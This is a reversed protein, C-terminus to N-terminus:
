RGYTIINAFKIDMPLIPYRGFMLSYPIEKLTANISTNHAFVVAPINRDWNTFEAEGIFPSLMTALTGHFRETLCNCEPTYSNTFRQEFGLAKGLESLFKARFCLGNDTLLIKFACFVCIVSDVLLKAVEEASGNALAGCVVYRTMLDTVVIVVRKESASLPFPGLIDASIFDCPKLNQIERNPNIPHLKGLKAQRSPKHVKCKLCNTIYLKIDKHMGPWHFKRCLKDTTKMIGQHAGFTTDHYMEIIRGRLVLPVVIRDEYFLIGHKICHKNDTDLYNRINKCHEDNSQLGIFDFGVHTEIDNSDQFNSCELEETCMFTPIDLTNATDLVKEFPNRSLCDAVKIISGPQYIIECDFEQLKLAWRGIRTKIPNKLNQLYTLALHDTRVIFKRLALYPRFIELAFILAVAEKEPISWRLEAGKLIRSAYQVPTERKVRKTSEANEVIVSHLLVAAIAYDCADTHVEVPLSPNFHGLIPPVSLMKKLKNFASTQEKNWWLSIKELKSMQYLPKAVFALKPMFKRYFNIMGLFSRLKTVTNPRPIKLVSEVKSSDPRIGNGNIVFGLLTIKRHIPSRSFIEGRWIIKAPFFCKM